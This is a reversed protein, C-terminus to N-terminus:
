YDGFDYRDIMPHWQENLVHDSIHPDGTAVSEIPPPPPPSTGSEPTIEKKKTDSSSGSCGALVGVVLLIAAKRM